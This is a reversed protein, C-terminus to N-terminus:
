KSENKDGFIKSFFSKKLGLLKEIKNKLNNESPTGVIRNIENWNDDLFLLTPTGKIYYKLALEKGDTTKTRIKKYSLGQEYFEPAVKNIIREANPCHVCHSSVFLLLKM